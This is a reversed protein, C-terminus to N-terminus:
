SNFNEVKFDFGNVEAVGYKVYAGTLSLVNNTHYLNKLAILVTHVILIVANPNLGTIVNLAFILMLHEYYVLNFKCDSCSQDQYIHGYSEFYNIIVKDDDKVEIKM